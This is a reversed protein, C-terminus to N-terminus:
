ESLWACWCEFCSVAKRGWWPSAQLGIGVVGVVAGIAGIAGIGVIGIKLWICAELLCPKTEMGPSTITYRGHSWNNVDSSAWTHVSDEGDDPHPLAM